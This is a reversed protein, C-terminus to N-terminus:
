DHVHSKRGALAPPRGKTVPDDTLEFSCACKWGGCQLDKSQPQWGYKAWVSLRYVKGEVRSCDACHSISDGYIWRAKKDSCAMSQAQARVANYQNIWLDARDLLPALAGENLKSNMVIDSILGPLYGFQNVIAINLTGWEETTMDAETIGCEGAGELWAETLGRRIASELASSASTISLAGSWLGRITSRFSSQFSNITKQSSATQESGPAQADQAPTDPQNADPAAVPAPVNEPTTDSTAPPTLTELVRGDIIGEAIALGREEWSQIAGDTKLSHLIATRKEQIQAQMFDQEDDAYDYEFTVAAPLAQRYIWELTQIIWGIGKGRAKMNQVTADAKTAGSVTAPWFDRADTGFVWALIYAYLTTDNWFDFGDPVSALDQLMMKMETGAVMGPSAFIPIGRYVLFGSDESEAQTQDLGAKLQQKTVGSVFGIARTFQGSIKEDKYTMMSRMVHSWQYVRSMACNHVVIGASIFNHTEEVDICYVTSASPPNDYSVIATDVFVGAPDLEWLSIDFPRSGYPIKYRMSPPVYPAIDDMLHATGIVTFKIDKRDVNRSKVSHCEYGSQTLLEAVADVEEPQAGSTGIFVSPRRNRQNPERHNIWGDDMYWAAMLLPSLYERILAIPIIKRGDKYFAERLWEFSPNIKTQGNVMNRYYRSKWGFESLACEKIRYWEEQALQQGMSMRPTFSNKGKIISADGLVTGIVLEIQQRSLAPIGTLIADGNQLESAARWGDLTQIQHDETVWSNRRRKGGCSQAWQGRINVLRRDGKPHIHWGTIPRTVLRGNADLTIVEETSKARVLDIIRRHKGDAMMVTSDRTLCFGIGRALEVPQVNDATFIVQNRHLRHRESTQPNTYVVPYEPDFTRWCQRSDLHGFGVVPSQEDRVDGARWVELFAGNDATLLDDVLKGTVTILSDGMGPNNLMDQAYNKARPPGDVEYNLTMARTKLTYIAAAVMTEQRSFRKLITDRRNPYIPSWPILSDTPIGLNVMFAFPADGIVDASQAWDGADARGQVSKERSGNRTTM